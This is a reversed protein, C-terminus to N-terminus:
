SGTTGNGTHMQDVTEALLIWGHAASNVYKDMLFAVSSTYKVLTNNCQILRGFDSANKQFLAITRRRDSADTVHDLGYPSHLITRFATYTTLSPLINLKADFKNIGSFTFSDCGYCKSFIMTNGDLRLSIACSNNSHHSHTVGAMLKTICCKAHTIYIFHMDQLCIRKSELLRRAVIPM